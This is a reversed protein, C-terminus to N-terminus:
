CGVKADRHRSVADSVSGRAIGPERPTVWHRSLKHLIFSNHAGRHQTGMWFHSFCQSGFIGISPFLGLGPQTSMGTVSTEALHAIRSNLQSAEVKQFM